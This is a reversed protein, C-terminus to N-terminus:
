AVTVAILAELAARLTNYPMTLVELGGYSYVTLDVEDGQRVVRRHVIVAHVGTLSFSEYPFVSPQLWIFLEVQPSPKTLVDTFKTDFTDRLQFATTLDCGTFFRPLAAIHSAWTNSSSLGMTKKSEGLGTFRSKAVLAQFLSVQLMWDVPDLEPPVWRGDARSAERAAADDARIADESTNRLTDSPQLTLGGLEAQGREYLDRAAAVTEAPFRVFCVYLICVHNCSDLSGQNLTHPLSVLRRMRAIVKDKPLKWAGAPLGNAQWDDLLALAQDRRARRNFVAGPDAALIADGAVRAATQIKTESTNM